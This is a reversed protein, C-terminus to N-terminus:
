KEYYELLDEVAGEVEYKLEVLKKDEDDIMGLHFMSRREVLIWAGNGIQEYVHVSKGKFSLIQYVDQFVGKLASMPAAYRVRYYNSDTKYKFTATLSDGSISFASDITFPDEYAWHQMKVAAVLKNIAALFDKEAIEKTQASATLGIFCLSLLPILKKM